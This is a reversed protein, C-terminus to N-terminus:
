NNDQEEKKRSGRSKKATKFINAHSEERFVEIPHEMIIKHGETELTAYREKSHAKLYKNNTFM